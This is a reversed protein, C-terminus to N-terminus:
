RKNSNRWIGQAEAAAILEERFDPHALSILAESRQWLSKGKLNAMGYETAVCQVVTRPVTIATGPTFYPLIQSHKEGNKDTHTSSLAIISKGGKSMYAGMVFDLQGGTGSIQRFGASEASIQGYLDVGLATNISIFNDFSAIVSPSNVYDTPANAFQPNHNMYDYLEQSGAAFGFVQKGRDRNKKLGTIMGAKSMKMMSNVYMETHIGLDKLDSEAVMNGVANPMGGIGLQITAGDFIEKMVLKAIEMDTESPQADPLTDMPLESHVVYDVQDIHLSDDFLGAVYPMNPNEEVVIHSARRVIDMIHSNSGGLNFYGFKDMTGTQLFLVDVREVEEPNRYYVPAESYRFPIHYVYGTKALKRELGGFHWSNFTFVRRGVRDNAAYIDLPHFVLLGRINIDDLEEARAALAKDLLNPVNLGLAYDLWDGSKVLKVAEEATTLKAEYAKQFDNM